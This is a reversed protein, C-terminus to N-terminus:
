RVRDRREKKRQTKLKTESPEHQTSYGEQMKCSLYEPVGIFGAKL